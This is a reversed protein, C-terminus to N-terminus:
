LFSEMMKPSTMLHLMCQFLIVGFRKAIEKPLDSGTEALIVINGM